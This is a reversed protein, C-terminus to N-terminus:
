FYNHLKGHVPHVECLDTISYDVSIYWSQFLTDVLVLGFLILILLRGTILNLTFHDSINKEKLMCNFPLASFPSLWDGHRLKM